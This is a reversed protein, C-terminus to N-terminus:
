AQMFILSTMLGRSKQIPPKWLNEQQCQKMNYSTSLSANCCISGFVKETEFIFCIKLCAYQFFYRLLYQVLFASNKCSTWPHTCDKPFTNSMQCKPSADSRCIASRGHWANTILGTNGYATGLRSPRHQCLEGGQPRIQLDAVGILFETHMYSLQRQCTDTLHCVYFLWRFGRM